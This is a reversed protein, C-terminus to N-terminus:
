TKVVVEKGQVWVREINRDDGINVWKEFLIEPSDEPFFDSPGEFDHLFCNVQLADFEYGVEFKGIV